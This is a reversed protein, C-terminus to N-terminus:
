LLIPNNRNLVPMVDVDKPIYGQNVLTLVGEKLDKEKLIPLDSFPNKRVQSPIRKAKTITGKKEKRTIRYEKSFDQKKFQTPIPDLSMKGKNKSRENEVLSTVLNKNKKSQMLRKREERLFDQHSFRKSNRTGNAAM